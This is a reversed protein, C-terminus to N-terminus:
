MHTHTYIYITYLITNYQITFVKLLLSIFFNDNLMYVVRESKYGPIVIGLFFCAGGRLSCWNSTLCVCSLACVVWGPAQWPVTQIVTKDAGDLAMKNANSAHANFTKPLCTTHHATDIGCGETGPGETGRHWSHAQPQVRTMAWWPVACPLNPDINARNLDREGGTSEWPKLVPQPVPLVPNQTRACCMKAPHWYFQSPQLLVTGVAWPTGPLDPQWFYTFM